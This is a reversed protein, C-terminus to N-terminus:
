GCAGGIGWASVVRGHAQIEAVVGCADAVSRVVAVNRPAPAIRTVMRAAAHWTKQDPRVAGVPTKVELWAALWHGTPEHFVEVLLDPAGVGGVGYEVRAGSEYVATGIANRWVKVGPALGLADMIEGQLITEPNGRQSKAPPANKAASRLM